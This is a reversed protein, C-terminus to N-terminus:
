PFERICLEYVCPGTRLEPSVGVCCDGPNKDWNGADLLAAICRESVIEVTKGDSTQDPTNGGGKSITNSPLFVENASNKAVCRCHPPSSISNHETLSVFCLSTGRSYSADFTTTYLGEDDLRELTELSICNGPLINTGERM